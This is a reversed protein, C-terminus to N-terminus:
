LHVGSMWGVLFLVILFSIRSKLEFTLFYFVSNLWLFPKTAWLKVAVPSALKEGQRVLLSEFSKWSLTRYLLYLELNWLQLSLLTAILTEVFIEPAAGATNEQCFQNSRILNHSSWVKILNHRSFESSRIMLIRISNKVFYKVYKFLNSMYIRQM